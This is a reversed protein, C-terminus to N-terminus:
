QFPIGIVTTATAGAANRAVVNLDYTRHFFFPVGKPVTFALSFSGPARRQLAFSYALVHASVAVVDPSTRVTWRVVDGEHVVKPATAITLIHPASASPSSVGSPTAGSPAPRVTIGVPVTLAAHPTLTPIGGRQLGTPVNLPAPTASPAAPRASQVSTRHACGAITPLALTAALALRRM